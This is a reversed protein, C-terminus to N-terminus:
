AAIVNFRAHLWGKLSAGNCGKDKRSTPPRSCAEPSRDSALLSVATEAREGVGEHGDGAEALGERMMLRHWASKIGLINQFNWEPTEACVKLQEEEVFGGPSTKQPISELQKEGERGAKAIFTRVKSFADPQVDKCCM